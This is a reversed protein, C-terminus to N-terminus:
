NQECALVLVM